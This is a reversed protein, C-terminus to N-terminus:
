PAKAGPGSPGPGADQPAPKPPEEDEQMGKKFDRIGKGLGKMMQPIKSPGFLVLVIVLIVLLEQARLGFM